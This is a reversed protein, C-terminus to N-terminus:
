ASAPVGEWPAAWEEFCDSLLASSLEGDANTFTIRADEHFAEKFKNIDSENFGDVYLQIVRVIEDYDPASGISEPARDIAM